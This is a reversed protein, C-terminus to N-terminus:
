APLIRKRTVAQIRKVIKKSDTYTKVHDTYTKGSASKKLTQRYVNKHSSGVNEAFPARKIRRSYTKRPLQVKEARTYREMAPARETVTAPKGCRTYTEWRYTYTKWQLHVNGMRTYTKRLTHTKRLPYVNRRYINTEVTRTCRPACCTQYLHFINGSPAGTESCVFGTKTRVARLSFLYVDSKEVHLFTARFVNRLVDSQTACCGACRLVKRLVKRLAVSQAVFCKAYRLRRLLVRFVKRLAASLAGLCRACCKACHFVECLM